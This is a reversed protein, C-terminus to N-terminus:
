FTCVWDFRALFPGIQPQCKGRFITYYHVGTTADPTGPIANTRNAPACHSDSRPVRASEGNSRIPQRPLPGAGRHLLLTAPYNPLNPLLSFGWRINCYIAVFFFRPACRQQVVPLLLHFLGRFQPPLKRFLLLITTILPTIRPEASLFTSKTVQQLELLQRKLNKSPM